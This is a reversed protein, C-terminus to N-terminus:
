SRLDHRSGELICPSTVDHWGCYALSIVLTGRTYTRGLVAYVALAFTWWSLSQCRAAWGSYGLTHGATLFLRLLAIFVFCHQKPKLCIDKEEDPDDTCQLLAHPQPLPGQYFLARSLLDQNRVLTAFSLLFFAGPFSLIRLIIRIIRGSSSRFAM